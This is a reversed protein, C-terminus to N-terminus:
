HNKNVESEILQTLYTTIDGAIEQIYNKVDENLLELVANLTRKFAEEQAAKDFSGSAKLSNVYTQNTAVVCMIVTNTIMDMYKKATEDDLKSNIENKKATVYDILYKTLIGLIPVICAEIIQIVTNM